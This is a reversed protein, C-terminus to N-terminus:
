PSFTFAYKLRPALSSGPIVSYGFSSTPYPASQKRSLMGYTSFPASQKEAFIHDVYQRGGPAETYFVSEPLLSCLLRLHDLKIGGATSAFGSGLCVVGVAAGDAASGIHAIRLQFEPVAGAAFAVVAVAFVMDAVVAMNLLTGWFGACIHRSKSNEKRYRQMLHEM